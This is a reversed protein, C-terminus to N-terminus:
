KSTTNELTVTVMCTGDSPTFDVMVSPGDASYDEPMGMISYSDNSEMTSVDFGAEKLAKGYTDADEKKIGHYSMMYTIENDDAIKFADRADYTGYSFRPITDPIMEWYDTNHNSGSTSTAVAHQAMMAAGVALRVISCSCLFSALVLVLSVSIIKKM